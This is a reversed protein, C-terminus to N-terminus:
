QPWENGDKWELELDWNSRITIPKPYYMVKEPQQHKLYNGTTWHQNKDDDNISRVSYNGPYLYQYNLITTSSVSNEKEAKGSQSVFQILRNNEKETKITLKLNGYFKQERTKFSFKLTDLNEVGTYGIFTHPLINIKYITNQKWNVRGSYVLPDPTVTGNKGIIVSGTEVLSVNWLLTDFLSFYVAHQMSIEKDDCFMSLNELKIPSISSPQNFRISFPKNIDQTLNYQIPFLVRLRTKDNRVVMKFVITDIPNISQTKSGNPENPLKESFLLQLSDDQYDKFWINITDKNDNYINTMQLEHDHRYNLPKILINQVPKNFVVQVHGYEVAKASKIFQKKPVEKFLLLDINKQGPLEILSDRFAIMEDPTDYLYNSNADKLAFVKYKGPRIYNIKFSGDANTKSFYNPTKKLPVSDDFTDYLMVLVGKEPTLTFANKVTGNFSLSDIIPGTSFVYQYNDIANGETIDTIAGGFNLSYTTNKKLTDKIEIVLDKGKVNIDPQKNMPPSIVLQGALDNLKIYENFKLHIVNTKFNVPMSDPIYKVIKPPTKDTAGGTPSVIQACSFFLTCILLHASTCTLSHASSFIHLHASTYKPYFKM